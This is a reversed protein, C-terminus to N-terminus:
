SAPAAVPTGADSQAAGPKAKPRQLFRKEVLHWSLFGAALSLVLCVIVYAPFSVDLVAKVMQQVPFGYLYVGYSMDGFRAADPVFRSPAFAIYLVVYTLAAPAVFEFLIHSETANAALPMALLLLAAAWNWRPIAHRYLFAVCGGLFYPGVSFWVYPWGVLLGLPGAGPMRGTMDLFVKAFLSGVFIALMLRRKTLVKALGLAALCLYFWFEYRISWLAGNITQSPNDRFADAGPIVEQLLLGKWAWDFVARPTVLSWGATAFAPVIVLTCIATAMLYGPYIRRIRKGLYDRTTKSALYSQCILFGSIVFFVRVGLEGANIKGDLLRSLPELEESGFYLAFCHSWVVALAMFLRITNFNNIRMASRDAPVLSAASVSPFPM